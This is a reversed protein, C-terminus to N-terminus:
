SVSNKIAYMVQRRTPNPTKRYLDRVAVTVKRDVTKRAYRSLVLAIAEQVDNTGNTRSSRKNAARKPSTKTARTKMPKRGM